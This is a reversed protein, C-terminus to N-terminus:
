INQVIKFWDNGSPLNECLPVLATVNAQVGLSALAFLTAVVCAAGSMDARMEDM